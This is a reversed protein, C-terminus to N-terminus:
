FDWGWYSLFQPFHWLNSSERDWFKLSTYFVVGTEEPPGLIKDQGIKPDLAWWSMFLLELPKRNDKVYGRRSGEQEFFSVTRKGLPLADLASMPALRTPPDPQPQTKEAPRFEVATVRHVRGRISIFLQGYPEQPPLELQGPLQEGFIYQGDSLWGAPWQERPLKNTPIMALYCGCTHLTTILVPEQRSNLTVYVLLGVNRGWTLHPWPVEPFHVRYILNTYDGKATAFTQVLTYITPRDTDVYVEYDNGTTLRAAAAGIRNYEEQYDQIEFHPAYRQLLADGGPEALPRYLAQNSEPAPGKGGTLACGQLTLFFILLSPLTLLKVIKGM